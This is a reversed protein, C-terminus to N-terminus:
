IPALGRKLAAPRVPTLHGADAAASAGPKSQISVACPPGRHWKALTGKRLADLHGEQNPNLDPDTKPDPDLNPNPSPSLHRKPTAVDRADCITRLM